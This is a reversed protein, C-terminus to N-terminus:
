TFKFIRLGGTGTKQQIVTEVPFVGRERMADLHSKLEESDTYFKYETTDGVFHFLVVYRDDGFRTKIASEYDLISIERNAIQGLQMSQCDFRKKGDKPTYSLGLESFKMLHQNTLKKYLHKCDAHCAMGKFSGIIQQRRKRSKVRHLARAAKQKIRKRVFSYVVPKGSKYSVFTKYGLFDLGETLPRVAFSSKIQLGKKALADKLIDYLRWADKKNATIFVIDDCYRYYHYHIVDGMDTYVRGKGKVVKDELEPVEHYSVESCMLHDVDSLFLNALCQSSRLGKSIGREKPLLTIFNDLIDLVKQDAIYKRVCQKMLEQDISDYFHYIDSQGYYVMNYPDARIDEEIIRHLWHMGRGKISAATNTILTPYVYSEVPRMVGQVGIRKFVPPAQVIRPKYGDRVFLERLESADIRFTGNGFQETLLALYEEKKPRHFDRQKPNELHSVLYDFSESLNDYAMIEPMLNDIPFVVEKGAEVTPQQPMEVDMFPIDNFRDM